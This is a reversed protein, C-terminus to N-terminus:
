VPQCLVQNILSMPFKYIDGSSDKALLPYKRARPKVGCITFSKGQMDFTRGYDEPSLGLALACRNFEEREKDFEEGDVTTPTVLIKMKAETHSYRINGGVEFRVGEMGINNLAESVAKRIEKVKSKTFRM